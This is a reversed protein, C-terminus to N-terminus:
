DTGLGLGFPTPSPFRTLIGTGSPLCKVTLPSSSPYSLRTNSTGTYRGYAPPTPLDAGGYRRSTMGTLRKHSVYTLSGM